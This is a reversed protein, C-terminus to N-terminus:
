PETAHPSGWSRAGCHWYARFKDELAALYTTAAESHEPPAWPAFDKDSSPVYPGPKVEFVVVDGELAFFTHWVHARTDIAFVGRSRDLLVFHEEQPTGMDDFTVYGLTGQLLVIAEAKPPNSHRHPRIYSGPQLANLMRQLVDSDGTHLVHIDRRRMSCRADRSKMALMDQNVIAIDSHCSM